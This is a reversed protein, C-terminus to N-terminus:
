GTKKENREGLNIDKFHAPAVQIAKRYMANAMRRIEWEAHKDLRLKFFNRMSQSNMNVIAGTAFSVPLLKRADQKTVGISRHSEYQKSIMKNFASDVELVAKREEKSLYDYENYVFGSDSKDIYRSSMQVFGIGIRHRDFQTLCSKSIGTIRWVWQFNEFPGTHPVPKMNLLSKTLKINASKTGESQHSMRATYGPVEDPEIKETIENDVICTNYMVTTGILEVKLKVEKYM